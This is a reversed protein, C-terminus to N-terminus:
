FHVRPCCVGSENDNIYFQDSIIAGSAGISYTKNPPVTDYVFIVTKGSDCIAISGINSGSFHNIRAASNIKLYFKSTKILTVNTTIM